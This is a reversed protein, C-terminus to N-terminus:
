LLLRRTGNLLRLLLDPPFHSLALFLRAARQLLRLRAGGRRRCLQLSGSSLQRAQLPFPRLELRLGPLVDLLNPLLDGGAGLPLDGLKLRRQHLLLLFAGLRLATKGLRLAFRCRQFPLQPARAGLLGARSFRAVLKGADLLARHLKLPQELLFPSFPIGPLFPRPRGFAAFSLEFGSDIHQLGGKSVHLRLRRPPSRGRRAARWALDTGLATL